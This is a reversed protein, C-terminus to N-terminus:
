LTAYEDSFRLALALRSPRSAQSQGNIIVTFGRSLSRMEDALSPNTLGDQATSAVQFSSEVKYTVEALIRKSGTRYDLVELTVTSCPLSPSPM